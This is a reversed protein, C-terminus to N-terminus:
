RSTRARIFDLIAKAAPDNIEIAHFCVSNHNRREIRLLQSDCGEKLLAEHMEEAMKPLLPLDKEANLFLFPPL